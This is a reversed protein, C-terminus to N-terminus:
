PATVVFRRRMGMEAHPTGTPGSVYCSWEITGPPVDITSLVSEHPPLLGVGGAFREDRTGNGIRMMIVEHPENSNNVFRVLHRGPTLPKDLKFDYNVLSATFDPTPARTVSALHAFVRLPRAMGLTLHSKEGDHFYCVLVYTGPLLDLTANGTKGKTTVPGSLPTAWDPVSDKAALPIFEAATHGKELRAVLLVHPADASQLTFTTLGSPISDPAQFYYNGAKVAVVNGPLSPSPAGVASLILLSAIRAVIETMM